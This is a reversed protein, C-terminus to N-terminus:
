RLLTAPNARSARRAPILSALVGALLLIPAAVAVSLVAQPEAGEVVSSLVRESAIAGAVGLILGVLMLGVGHRLVLWRVAGATAGLAIRVSMEPLRQRTLYALVGYIGVCALALAMAAFVGFLVLLFRQPAISAAALSDFTSLQYLVQDRGEGFIAQRLPTVLTEPDVETRVAISMLQSWRWVLADPLQAFPYYLQARVASQDDAALGWQRVHGVVGVVTVPDAGFENSWLQRGIPSDKGFAREALVEDIVVVQQSGPRDADTFFRGARLPIGTVKLYDPTICTALTTTQQKEDVPAASRRYEIQNTGQRMPVTDVMAIASVGPVQRARDLLDQWAIRAASPNRLKPPSIATRAILVNRVDVGPDRSSVDLLTRGLLSACALLIMALAIQVVVFAGMRRSRSAIGRGGARLTAEVDGSQAGFAPALGFAIGSVLSIGLAFLLVPSNIAIEETRPLAGPWAAVFPVVGIWALGVGLVGGLTSLVVSEALCQRIVRGRAAGLAVRLAFEHQRTQARALLLNAINVCAILLVGAVAAFLLWLTKDLDGVDLRLRDAAYVRDKNTDPYATALGAGIGKMEARAQELTAGPRLLGVTDILRVARRTLVRMPNQGIPTYVDVGDIVRIAAPAVGVITYTRTDLVLTTGIANPAGGFRRRWVDDSLIVVSPAGVRDDDATFDRGVNVRVGLTSFLNASIYSMTLLEPEGPMTMTATDLFRGALDLTRSQSRVDVFDPHALRQDGFRDTEEETTVRVLRQHNAYPLPRLLVGEIVTFMVTTIGTGVALTILAVAAFGPSHRLMRGTLRADQAFDRLWSRSRPTRYTRTLSRAERVVWIAASMAGAARRKRAYDEALDGLLPDATDRPLERNLRREIYRWLITPM